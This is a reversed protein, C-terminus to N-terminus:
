QLRFSVIVRVRFTDPAGNRLGPKYKYQLVARRAAADLVPHVSRIVETASVNGDPGVIAEILVDGQLQAARAVQPYVPRTTDTRVPQTVANSPRPDETPPPSQPVAEAIRPPPQVTTPNSASVTPPPSTETRNATPSEVPATDGVPVPGTPAARLDDTSPAQTRADAARRPLAPTPAAVREDRVPTVPTASTLDPSAARQVPATVATPLPAPPVDLPAPRLLWIGAGVAAISGAIAVPWFARAPQTAVLSADLAAVFAGASQYRDTPDKALAKKLVSLATGPIAGGAPTPVRENVHKMLLAVPSDADFPPSGTLMEYAVIGLSYIDSTIDIEQGLVQEPSMYRPTGIVVGTRTLALSQQMLQALGFDCVWAHDSEDLLVNSPKIDRHVVGHAHAHDLAAAIGQL